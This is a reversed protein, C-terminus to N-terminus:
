FVSGSKRGGHSADTAERGKQRESVLAAVRKDFLLRVKVTEREAARVGMNPDIYESSDFESSITYAEDTIRVGRM